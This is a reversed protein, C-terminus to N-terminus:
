LSTKIDSTMEQGRPGKLSAYFPNEKLCAKGVVHGQGPIKMRATEM